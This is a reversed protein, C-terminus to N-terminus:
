LEQELINRDDKYIVKQLEFYIFQQFLYVLKEKHYLPYFLYCSTLKEALIHIAM